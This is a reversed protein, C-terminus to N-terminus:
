VRDTYGCRTPGGLRHCEGSAPVMSLCGTDSPQDTRVESPRAIEEGPNQADQTRVAYEYCGEAIAPERGPRYLDPPLQVLELPYACGTTAAPSTQFGACAKMAPSAVVPPRDVNHRSQVTLDQRRLM